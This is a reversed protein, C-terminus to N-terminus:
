IWIDIMYISIPLSWNVFLPALVYNAPFTHCFNPAFDSCITDCINTSTLLHCAISQIICIVSTQSRFFISIEEMNSINYASQKGFYYFLPIDIWWSKTPLCVCHVLWDMKETTPPPYNLLWLHGNNRSWKFNANRLFNNKVEQASLIILLSFNSGRLQVISAIIAQWICM